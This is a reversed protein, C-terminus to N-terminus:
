SVKYAEFAEPNEDMAEKVIRMTEEPNNAIWIMAEAVTDAHQM